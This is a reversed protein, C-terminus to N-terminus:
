LSHPAHSFTQNFSQRAIYLFQQLGIDLLDFVPELFLQFPHQEIATGDPSFKEWPPGVQIDEEQHRRVVTGDEFLVTCEMASPAFFLNDNGEKQCFLFQVQRCRYKRKLKLLDLLLM